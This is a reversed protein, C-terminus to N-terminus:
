FLCIILTSNKIVKAVNLDVKLNSVCKIVQEIGEEKLSSTNIPFCCSDVEQITYFGNKFDLCYFFFEFGMIMVFPFALNIKAKILQNLHLKSMLALKLKDHYLKTREAIKTFEALSGDKHMNATTTLIRLDVKPSISTAKFLDPVTGGWHLTISPSSFIEELVHSWFKVKFDEESYTAINTSYLLHNKYVHM